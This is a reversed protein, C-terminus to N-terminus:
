PHRGQPGAWDDFDIGGGGGGGDGVAAGLIVLGTFVAAAIGGTLLLTKGLSFERVGAYEVEELPVVVARTPRETPVGRFRQADVDVQMYTDTQERGDERFFVLPTDKTFKHARGERDVLQRVDKREGRLAAGMDELMSNGDDRWGDLRTLEAKPLTHTTSCGTTLLAIALSARLRM